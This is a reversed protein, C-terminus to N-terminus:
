KTRLIIQTGSELKVNKDQSTLVSDQMTGQSLTVGKMGVVGQTTATLPPNAPEGSALQAQQQQSPPATNNTAAGMESNQNPGTPNNQPSPTDYSPTASPVAASVPAGVAQIEASLPIESGDKLAIKDFVIGLVSDKNDHGSPKAEAVHGMVKADKPVVVKGNASLDHPIKGLVPDGTHVKKADVSKSLEVPLLSGPSFKAPASNAAAANAPTQAFAFIPLVLLTIILFIKQM